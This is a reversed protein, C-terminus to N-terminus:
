EDDASAEMLIRLQEIARSTRWKVSGIPQDLVEAMDSFSLGQLYHLVVIEANRVDLRGIAQYLRRSEEDALVREMPGPTPRDNAASRDPMEDPREGVPGPPASRRRWDLFKRYAIKHLWTALSSRGHFSGIGSWAAAFTEQALDEAQHTDRCLHLLLGYVPAHHEHILWACAEREGAVLRRVWDQERPRDLQM